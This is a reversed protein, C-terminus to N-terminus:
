RPQPPQPAAPQAANGRNAEVDGMADPRRPGPAASGEDIRLNGERDLLGLLQLLEDPTRARSLSPPLLRLHGRWLDFIGQRTEASLPNFGFKAYVNDIKGAFEERKKALHIFDVARFDPLRDVRARMEHAPLEEGNQRLSQRARQGENIQEALWEAALHARSHPTVAVDKFRMNQGLTLKTGVDEQKEHFELTTRMYGPMSPHAVGSPDRTLDEETLPYSLRFIHSPEEWRTCKDTYSYVCNKNEDSEKRLAAPNVLGDFRVGGLDVGRWIVGEPITFDPILQGWADSKRQRAFDPDQNAVYDRRNKWDEMLYPRHYRLSYEIAQNLNFHDKFRKFAARYLANWPAGASQAPLTSLNHGQKAFIAPLVLAHFAAAMYDHTNLVMFRIQRYSQRARSGQLAAQHQQWRRHLSEAQKDWSVTETRWKEEFDGPRSLHAIHMWQWGAPTKPWQSVPMESLPKLLEIVIKPPLPNLSNFNFKMLNKIAAPKLSVEDELYFDVLRSFAWHADPNDLIPQGQDILANLCNALKPNQKRNKRRAIFHMALFFFLPYGEPRGDPNDPRPGRAFQIRNRLIKADEPVRLDLFPGMTNPSARLRLMSEYVWGDACRSDSLAALLELNMGALLPGTSDEERRAFSQTLVGSATEAFESRWQVERPVGAQALLAELDGLVCRLEASTIDYRDEPKEIPLDNRFRTSFVPSPFARGKAFHLEKSKHKLLDQTIAAELVKINCPNSAWQRFEAVNKPRLALPVASALSLTKGRLRM